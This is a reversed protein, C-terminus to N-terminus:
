STARTLGPAKVPYTQSQQRLTGVAAGTEINLIVITGSWTPNDPGTAGDNLTGEFYLEASDTQLADYLEAWVSAAATSSHFQLQVTESMLGAAHDEVLEGLTAPITVDNRSQNITAMSIASKYSTASGSDAGLKVDGKLQIVTM